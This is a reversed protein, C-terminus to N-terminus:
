FGAAEMLHLAGMLCHKRAGLLSSESHPPFFLAKDVDRRQWVAALSVTPSTQQWCADSETECKSMLYFCSLPFIWKRFDVRQWSSSFKVQEVPTHFGLVETFILPAREEGHINQLLACLMRLRCKEDM